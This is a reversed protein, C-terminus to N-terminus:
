FIYRVEDYGILLGGFLLYAFWHGLQAVMGIMANDFVAACTFASAEWIFMAAAWLFILHGFTSIPFDQILYAPIGLAAVAFLFMVPILLIFKTVIYAVPSSMGNKVERIMTKLEKNLGMVTIVSKNAPVTLLWSNVWIKNVAMDQTYPRAKIYVTM